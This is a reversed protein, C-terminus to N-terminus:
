CVFLSVCLQIPLWVDPGLRKSVLQSPLEACMFSLYFIKKIRSPFSTLRTECFLDVNRVMQGNNFDNTNLHLDKLFNDSLAPSINGPHALNFIVEVGASFRSIRLGRDLQLAFFMICCWVMIRMDVKRVLSREEGETWTAKPDFRLSVRDRQRPTWIEYIPSM